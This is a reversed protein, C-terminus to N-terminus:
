CTVFSDIKSLHLIAKDKPATHAIIARDFKIPHIRPKPLLQQTNALATLCFCRRPRYIKGPVTPVQRNVSSKTQTEQHILLTPLPLIDGLIDLCGNITTAASTYLLYARALIAPLIVPKKERLDVAVRTVSFHSNRLLRLSHSIHLSELLTIDFLKSESNKWERKQSRINSILNSTFGQSRLHDIAQTSHLGECTNLNRTHEGPQAYHRGHPEHLTKLSRLDGIIGTTTSRDIMTLNNAQPWDTRRGPVDSCVHM